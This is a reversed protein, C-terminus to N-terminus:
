FVWLIIIITKTAKILNAVKLIKIDVPRKNKLLTRIDLYELQIANANHIGTRM